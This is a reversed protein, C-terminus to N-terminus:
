CLWRDAQQYFTPKLHWGDLHWLGNGTGSENVTAAYVDLFKWGQALSGAKLRDNVAKIMQLFGPVDGPDRKETLQYGPAPVGQITISNFPYQALAERIFALYGDVTEQVLEQVDKGSKKAAPWIGEEPRCDIEGIAFMLNNGPTISALHAEVAEQYVTRYQSALHFMKCGM